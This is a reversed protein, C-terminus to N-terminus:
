DMVPAPHVIVGNQRTPRIIIIAEYGPILEGHTAIWRKNGGLFPKQKEIYSVIDQYSLGLTEKSTQERLSSSREKYYKRKERELLSVSLSFYQRIAKRSLNTNRNFFDAVTRRLDCSNTVRKDGEVFNLKCRTCKYRQQNNRVKGNKTSWECGCRKCTILVSM